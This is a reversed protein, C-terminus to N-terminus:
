RIQKQHRIKDKLEMESLRINSIAKHIGSKRPFLFFFIHGTWDNLLLRNANKGSWVIFRKNITGSCFMQARRRLSAFM